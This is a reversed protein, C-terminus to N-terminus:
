DSNVPVVPTEPVDFYKALLKMAAPAAATGGHGGNEILACVAITPKETPGYGCWWSQDLLRGGVSGYGPLKQFKEATGTKGAVDVGFAGFIKQSTGNAGHTADFLGEKVIRIANPDLNLDRSPKPRIPRVIVPAQENSKPEEIQQVLHPEVLKGGNALLAYFRTMQLPTTLLDGQGIALQVSDGSTWLKDIETKFHRRHWAPTPMLGEEEPGVDIGTLSGFGMKRAWKQLPSDKRGYFRLGVRYFYTDCSREIAPALNIAMNTYPDWNVFKQGDVTISPDCQIPEYPDLMKEQLAALATVPKFTSGPPYIGSVARNLQPLNAEPARLANLEKQSVNGVFTKPDYTPNSAMALIAGDSPNMAVIAGGDAYYEDNEIALRIGYALADEAARQLDADITLRVSYGPQPLQSYERDSTVRGLADVRVQGEGALGRLYRDYTAELGTQGIRDGAAYGDKARSELEEGTIESVYGLLQAATNGDEYSRLQVPQIEVGPFDAQHEYLYNVKNDKVSTKITVPTLPDDAHSRLEKRIEKPKLQLLSALESIEANREVKSLEKFAAPWIQVQTGPQNSVLVNGDKDLITGRPAQLRFTRVQNNRADQLYREGSIVQLAWLRFFLACFLTIAFVGLIAIRVAM